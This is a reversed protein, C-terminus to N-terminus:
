PLEFPEAGARDHVELLWRCARQKLTHLSNCAATQHAFRLSYASYGQMLRQLRTSRRIVDRFTSAALRFSRGETQQVVSYPSFGLGFYLPLGVVGENGVATAECGDGDRIYVTLAIAGIVPFYAHSMSEEQPCVVHGAPFTVSQVANQLAPHERLFVDLMRNGSSRLGKKFSRPQETGM